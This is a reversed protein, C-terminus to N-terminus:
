MLFFLCFGWCLEMLFVRLVRAFNLLAYASFVSCVSTKQMNELLSKLCLILLCSTEEFALARGVKVAISQLGIVFASVDYLIGNMLPLEKLSLVLANIM